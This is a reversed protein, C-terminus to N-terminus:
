ARDDIVLAAANLEEALAIAEREGQDLETLDSDFSIAAKEVSIWKPLDAIWIRVKQPADESQLEEFVAKPIVVTQYLDPLVDIADVLV